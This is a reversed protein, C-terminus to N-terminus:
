ETATKNQQKNLQNVIEQAKQEQEEADDITKWLGSFEYEFNSEGTVPDVDPVAIVKVRPNCCKAYQPCKDIHCQIVNIYGLKKIKFEGYATKYSEKGNCFDCM